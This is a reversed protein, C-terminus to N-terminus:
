EFFTKIVNKESFHKLYCTERFIHYFVFSVCKEVSIANNLVVFWWREDSPVMKQIESGSSERLIPVKVQNDEQEIVTSEM